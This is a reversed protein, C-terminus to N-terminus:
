LSVAPANRCDYVIASIYHDTQSYIVVCSDLYKRYVSAPDIRPINLEFYFDKHTNLGVIKENVDFEPSTYLRKDYKGLEQIEYGGNDNYVVVKKIDPDNKIFVLASALLQTSSGNIKGFLYEEMFVMNYLVGIVLIGLLATSKFNGKRICLAVLIVSLIWCGAIFAFSVYFPFPGSGGSFVYLFNWKLSLVRSVWASKPYLSPVFHNIFQILFIGVGAISILIVEKKRIDKRNFTFYKAYISAVIICLPVILFQFYRDLAGASFDFVILYVFLELFIFIILPRVKKFIEKDIFYVPVILLPSSFLISKAFQIFIQFWARQGFNIFHEWYKLAAGLNFFPFVFKALVLILVLGIAGVLGYLLSVLIKKKNSFLDKELGFDIALALIPLATIVKILFGGVAGILIICLWIWSKFNTRHFAFNNEKWKYYGILMILLFFPMIAGDVDVMLSALLSYYSFTFFFTTWLAVKKNFIIRALYFILFLNLIGFFFPIFRFNDYGIAHGIVRYIFETLPPHPVVGPASIAPNAYQPWKYEDQHYPIHLGAIHTTLFFVAFICLIFYEKKKLIFNFM